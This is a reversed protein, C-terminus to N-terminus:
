KGKKICQESTWLAAGLAATMHPDKPVQAEMGLADSVAKVLGQDRAGGGVMALPPEIGIREALSILQAALARHIGALLDEKAVGEAVRSIAESEAFVLCGTNFDIRNKSALSLMGIDEVKLQLVKAIVSLVKGSGGACKGSVVFNQLYGNEDM